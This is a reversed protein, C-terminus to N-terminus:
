GRGMKRIGSLETPTMKFYSILSPKLKVDAERFSETKPWNSFDLTNESEELLTLIIVRTEEYKGIYISTIGEFSRM